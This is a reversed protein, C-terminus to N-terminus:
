KKLAKKMMTFTEESIVHEMNCADEEATTPAPHKAVSPINAEELMETTLQSFRNYDDAYFSPNKQHCYDWYEKRKTEDKLMNEFDQESVKPSLMKNDIALKYEEQLVSM